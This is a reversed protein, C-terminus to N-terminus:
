EEDWKSRIFTEVVHKRRAESAKREKDKAIAPARIMAQAFVAAYAGDIERRRVKDQDATSDTRRTIEKSPRTQKGPSTTTNPLPGVPRIEGAVRSLTFAILNFSVSHASSTSLIELVQMREDEGSIFARSREREIMARELEMWLDATVIGDELSSLFDVLTEAVAELRQLSNTEPPLLEKFALDNDLAERVCGKVLDRQYPDGVFATFPWGLDDWPPKVGEGRM